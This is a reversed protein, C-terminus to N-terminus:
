AQFPPAQARLSASLEVFSTKGPPGTDLTVLAVSMGSLEITAIQHFPKDVPFLDIIAPSLDKAPTAPVARLLKCCETATSKQSPKAPKSHFPCASKIEAKATVARLVCHNSLAIWSCITVVVILWRATASM